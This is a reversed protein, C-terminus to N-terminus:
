ARAATQDYYRIPRGASDCLMVGSSVGPVLWAGSLVSAPHRGGDVGEYEFDVVCFTKHSGAVEKVSARALRQGRELRAPPTTPDAFPKFGAHLMVGLALAVLAAVGIAILVGVPWGLEIVGTVGILLGGFTTGMMLWACLSRNVAIPWSRIRNRGSALWGIGLTIAIQVLLGGLAVGVLVVPADPPAMALALVVILMTFWGMVVLGSLQVLFAGLSRAAGRRM